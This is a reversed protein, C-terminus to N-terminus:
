SVGILAGGVLPGGSVSRAPTAASAQLITDAAALHGVTAINKRPRLLADYEITGHRARSVIRPDGAFPPVDARIPLGRNALTAESWSVVDVGNTLAENGTGNYNFALLGRVTNATVYLGNGTISARPLELIHICDRLHVSSEGPANYFTWGGARGTVPSVWWLVCNEFYGPADWTAPTTLAPTNPSQTGLGIIKFFGNKNIGNADATQISSTQGATKLRLDLHQNIRANGTTSTFVTNSWLGGMKRVMREGVIFTNYTSIDARDSPTGSQNNNCTASTAYARDPSCEVGPTWYFITLGSATGDSHSFPHRGAYFDTRGLTTSPDYWTSYPILAIPIQVDHTLVEHGGGAKYFNWPTLAERNGRTAVTVGVGTMAGARSNIATFIGGTSGGSEELVCSHNDGGLFDCDYVLVSETGTLSSAHLPSVTTTSGTAFGQVTIGWYSVMDAIPTFCSYNQNAPIVDFWNFNAHGFDFYLRNTGSDWWWSFPTNPLSGAYTSVNAASTTKYGIDWVDLTSSVWAPDSTQTVYFRTGSDLTQGASFRTATTILPRTRGPWAVYRTYDIADSAAFPQASVQFRGSLYIVCRSGGNAARLTNAASLTQKPTSPTLGNNADSGTHADVYITLDPTWLHELMRARLGRYYWRHFALTDPHPMAGALQLFTKGM